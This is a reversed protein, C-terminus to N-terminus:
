LLGVFTPTNARQPNQLAVPGDIMDIFKNTRM